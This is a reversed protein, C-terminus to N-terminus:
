KRYSGNLRSMDLLIPLRSRSRKIRTTRSRYPTERAKRILADGLGYFANANRPNRKLLQQYYTIQADTRTSQAEVVHDFCGFVILAAIIALAKYRYTKM